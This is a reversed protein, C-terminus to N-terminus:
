VDFLTKSYKFSVANTTATTCQLSIELNNGSFSCTIDYPIDLGIAVTGYETLSVSSGNHIILIKSTVFSTLQSLQLLYEASRYLTIDFSDILVPTDVSITNGQATLQAKNLDLTNATLTGNLTLSADKTQATSSTDIIGAEPATQNVWLGSATDYALVENDAISAGYGIGVNHLEELEFGNQVKVFIEGNNQNVRTVIGIFVLHDPAYPKNALGYILNGSTGLWVPDGAANAASTDLGSLLGESVVYVIDNTIGGTELLGMTKSSTSESSNSAKSIIMNTGNASSVYVAQGKSISQGLKVEHRITSISDANITVSDAAADTTLTIGNGAILTLTDSITEAVVDDQGSVSITNFSNVGAVVGNVEVWFTGDWIYFSGTSGVYWSDGVQPNEPATESVTTQSSTSNGVPVWASNSFVKIIDQATNYYIDGELATSPDTALNLLNVPTLFKKSAM